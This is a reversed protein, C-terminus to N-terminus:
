AVRVAESHEVRVPALFSIPKVALVSCNVQRLIKEATSGIIFTALRTRPMTGVVIVDVNTKQAM